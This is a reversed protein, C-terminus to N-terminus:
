TKKLQKIKKSNAVMKTVTHIEKKLARIDIIFGKLLKGLAADENTVQQQNGEFSENLLEELSIMQKTVRQNLEARVQQLDNLRQVLAQIQPMIEEKGLWVMYGGILNHLFGFEDRLFEMEAQWQETNIYIKEWIQGIPESDGEHDTFNGM